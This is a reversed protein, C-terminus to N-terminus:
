EAEDKHKMYIHGEPADDAIHLKVGEITHGDLKRFDDLANPGLEANLAEAFKPSLYAKYPPKVGQERLREKAKIFQSLTTRSM